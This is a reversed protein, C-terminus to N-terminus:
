ALRTPSSRLSIILIPSTAPFKKWTRPTCGYRPRRSVASSSLFLFLWGTATRWYLKQCFRKPPFRSMTPEVMRRLPEGNVTIPTAAGPKSPVSTPNGMWTQAGTIIFGVM